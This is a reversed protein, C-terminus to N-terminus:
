GQKEEQWAGDVKEMEGVVGLRSWPAEERLRHTM